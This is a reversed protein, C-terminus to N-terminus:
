IERTHIDSSSVFSSYDIVNTRISKIVSLTMDSLLNDVPTWADDIPPTYAEGEIARSPVDRALAFLLVLCLSFMALTFNTGDM